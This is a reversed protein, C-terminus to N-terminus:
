PLLKGALYTPDLQALRRDGREDGLLYIPALGFACASQVAVGLQDTADAHTIALADARLPVLAQLLQTAPKAGLTAPLAVIRRDPALQELTAALTAVTKRDGPSVSPLDLLLLGEERARRLADAAEPAAISLSRGGAAELLAAPGTDSQALQIRAYAVPLTGLERYADLLAACCTTKGSGGAGVFAIAANAAPLSPVSPIRQTLAWRVARALGQRQAMLPAVHATATEVLERILDEGVGGERLRAEVRARGQGRSQEAAASVVPAAAALQAPVAATAGTASPAPTSPAVSTPVYADALNAGRAAAAFLERFEEGGATTV